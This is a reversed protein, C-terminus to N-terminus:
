RYEDYTFKDKLIQSAPDDSTTFLKHFYAFQRAISKVQKLASELTPSGILEEMEDVTFYLVTTYRKPLLDIYPKWFSDGKFKEMLLFVALAVNPMNKLIHDRELLPALQTRAASEVTMMLTRPVAIVLSGQVIDMDAKMGLGFGAFNGISTGTFIAGNSSVWDTFCAVAEERTEYTCEFKRQLGIIQRLITDLERHVALIKRPQAEHPTTSAKLLNDILTDLTRHYNHSQGRRGM